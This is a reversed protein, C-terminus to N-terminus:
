RNNMHLRGYRNRFESPFCGEHYRFWALFAKDDSFELEGAIEKVYKTTNSLASKARDLLFRNILAKTNSGFAKKCIRSLHDASYGFQEAVNQVTLRGSANIRIWEYIKEAQGNYGQRREEALSCLECLLHLLVANVMQKSVTPLNNCHLLEKFLYANRFASFFREEFPLQYDKALSFHVWYFSVNNSKQTGSHWINPSLLFLEGKKALIERDEERMWVEGKTVYIIEYTSELREPHIWERTSQFLGAGSFKISPVTLANM